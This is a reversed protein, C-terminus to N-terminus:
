PLIDRKFIGFDGDKQSIYYITNTKTSIVPFLDPAPEKTVQVPSGSGLPVAYLNNNGAVNSVCLIFKGKYDTTPQFTFGGPGSLPSVKKSSRDLKYLSFINSDRNSYFYVAGGSSSYVPGFDFAAGSTLKTEAGSSLNKEYLNYTGNRRSYYVLHSGNPSVSPFESWADARTIDASQDGSISMKRIIGKRNESSFYYIHKSDASFVPQAELGNHQTLTKKEGTAINLLIIDGKGDRYDSSFALFKGDPSIALTQLKGYGGFVRKPESFNVAGTSQVLGIMFLTLFAHRSCLQLRM